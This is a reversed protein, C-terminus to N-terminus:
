GREGAVAITFMMCDEFRCAASTCHLVEWSDGWADLWHFSRDNTIGTCNWGLIDVQFGDVTGFYVSPTGHLSKDREFRAKMAMEQQKYPTIIALSDVEDGYQEIVGAGHSGFKPVARCAQVRKHLGHCTVPHM